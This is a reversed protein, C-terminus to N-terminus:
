AHNNGGLIITKAKLLELQKTTDVVNASRMRANELERRANELADKCRANIETTPYAPFTVASVEVISGIKEIFRTPKDTELDEWREQDISFMFSMGTIDGRRVASYLSRSDANNEVDLKIWPLFLGQTDVELQMTSNGNNRRSRALPIMDRNHNVLFRVDTLDTEALSGSVIEEWFFGLDTRAGYVVPRGTLIKEDDLEEARVEFNFYRRELEKKPM